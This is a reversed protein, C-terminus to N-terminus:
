ASENDHLMRLWDDRGSGYRSSNDDNDDNAGAGATYINDFNRYFKKLTLWHNRKLLTSRYNEMRFYTMALKRKLLTSRYYEMRFTPDHGNWWM